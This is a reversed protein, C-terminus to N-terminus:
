GRAESSLMLRLGEAWGLDLRSKLCLFRSDVSEPATEFATRKGTTPESDASVAVHFFVLTRYIWHRRCTGGGHGEYAKGVLCPQVHLSIVSAHLSVGSIFMVDHQAYSYILTTAAFTESPMHIYDCSGEMCSERIGSITYLYQLSTGSTINFHVSAFYVAHSSSQKIVAGMAQGCARKAQTLYSLPPCKM